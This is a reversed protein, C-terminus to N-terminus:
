AKTRTETLHPVGVELGLIVVLSVLQHRINRKPKTGQMLTLRFRPRFQSTGTQKTYGMPWTAQKTEVEKSKLLESRKTGERPKTPDRSGAGQLGKEM